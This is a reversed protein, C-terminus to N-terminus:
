QKVVRQHLGTVSQHIFHSDEVNLNRNTLRGCTSGLNIGSSSIKISARNAKTVVLMDKIMSVKDEIELDVFKEKSDSVKGAYGSYIPYYEQLKELYSDYLEDLEDSDYNYRRTNADIASLLENFKSPLLLQQANAWESASSLRVLAGDVKVLQNIMVVPTIISVENYEGNTNLLQIFETLRNKYLRPVNILKKVRVEQKRKIETVEIIMMHAPKESTYGGYKSTDERRSNVPFVKAVNVDNPQITQDYFNGTAIELKHTVLVDNRDMMKKMVKTRSSADWLIEGTKDVKMDKSFESLVYGHKGKSSLNTGFRPRETGNFLSPFRLSLFQGTIAVLYADKAHHHDNLFRYKPFEFKNRLNSVLDARVSIVQTDPYAAKLISVVHKSIQRTEVLQRNIFGSLLTEKKHEDFIMTLLNYKRSSLLGDSQLRNWWNQQKRIIEIPLGLTDGKAQNQDITVLAKNDFSNDKILSQPIIHDVEYNSLQSLDLKKNSYLCRGKQIYYLYLAENRLEVEERSRLDKYIMDLEPSREEELIRQYLQELRRKRSTTRKKEDENRAFELFISDPAQKEIEVIEKVILITQWIQQKVAPSCALAHIVSYDIEGVKVGEGQVSEIIAKFDYKRDTIVQNFVSTTNELVDMISEDNPKSRIGKLLEYSLRGWGDYNQKQVVNVIDQNLTPYSQVIKNRLIKKDKIMTNWSILNEIMEENEKVEDLSGFLSIFLRTTSRSTAFAKDKQYGSISIEGSNLFEHNSKLWDRLNKESVSDRELFLGNFLKRKLDNPLRRENIKIGNLENLVEYDQYIMSKKPLVKENPLYSCHNTRIEIFKEASKELDIISDFNWPTVRENSKRVATSFESRDNLPGVFYPVRFSILKELKEKNDLLLPYHKGQNEIIKVLESLNLQYPIFANDKTKLRKLLNNLLLEKHLDHYLKQDSSSMEVGSFASLIFKNLDEISCEKSNRIHSHYSIKQESKFVQKFAKLNYKKLLIKTIRLEEKHKNYALVKASSLSDQGILVEQLIIWSYVEHIKELIELDDESFLVSLREFLEPKEDNFIDSISHSEKDQFSVESFMKVFNMKYDLIGKLAFVIFDKDEPSVKKLDFLNKISTEKESRSLHTDKLIEAIATLQDATAFKDFIFAISSQISEVSSVNFSGGEYLFHGRSKIMHHLALYIFRIDKKQPKDLLEKRLHYITPYNDFFHKDSYSRDIFINYTNDDENLFSDELRHFFGPDLDVLLPFFLEQLLELRYKKRAMRRRNSRYVRREQATEAGDTKRVGHMSQKKFRRIESFEDVVSWGVSNTGIDLGIDYKKM